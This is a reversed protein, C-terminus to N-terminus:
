DDQASVEKDIDFGDMVLRGMNKTVVSAEIETDIHGYVDTLNKVSSGVVKSLLYLPVKGYRLRMMIFFHRSSYLSLRKAENALEEELGSAKLVRQLRTYLSQRVYPERNKAPNFLIYDDPQPTHGMKTYCEKIVEFRRRVPAVLVRKMGNKAVEARVTIKYNKKKDDDSGTSVPSVDSWKLKLYEIPRLGTNYLIGMTKTFCTRKLLEDKDRFALPDKVKNGNQDIKKGRQYVNQLYKYFTEYQKETLIDRKYSKDRSEKLRDLVPVDDLSIFRQKVAVKHYMSLVETVANNIQETSRSQNPNGTEKPQNYFWMAFGSVKDKPIKDIKRNEYGLHVIYKIWLNLFYKKLKYTEPTIGMHPVDTIISELSKKYKLVLEETTISTLRENKQIKGKIEQLLNRATSLAEVRDTTDLSKVYQKKTLKDYTRFYYVNSKVDGRRYIIAKEDPYVLEKDLINKKAGSEVKTELATKKANALTTIATLLDASSLGAAELLSALAEVEKPEPSM